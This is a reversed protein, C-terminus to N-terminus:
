QVDSDSWVGTILVYDSTSLDTATPTATDCVIFDATKNSSSYANVNAVRVGAATAAATFVQVHLGLLVKGVNDFTIRYKGTAANYKVSTIGKSTGPDTGVVGKTMDTAAGGGKWVGSVIRLKNAVGFVPGGSTTNFSM